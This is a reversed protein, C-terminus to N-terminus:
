KPGKSRKGAIFQKKNIKNTKQKGHYLAVFADNIEREKKQLRKM